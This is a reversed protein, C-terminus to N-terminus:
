NASQEPSCVAAAGRRIDLPEPIAKNEYRIWGGYEGKAVVERGGICRGRPKYSNALCVIHKVYAM